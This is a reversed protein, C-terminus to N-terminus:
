WWSSEHDETRKATGSQGPATGALGDENDDNARTGPRDAEGKAKKKELFELRGADSTDMHSM